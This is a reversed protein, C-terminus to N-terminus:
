RQIAERWLPMVFPGQRPWLGEDDFFAVARGGHEVLPFGGQSNGLRSNSRPQQTAPTAVPTPPGPFYNAARPAIVDQFTPTVKTRPLEGADYQRARKRTPPEGRLIALAQWFNSM